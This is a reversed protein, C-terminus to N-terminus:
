LAFVLGKRPDAKGEVFGTYATALADAGTAHEIKILEPVRDAFAAWAAGVRQAFAAPGLAAAREQGVTPASFLEPRPGPLGDGAVFTAGEWHTAGVMISARLVRHTVEHVQRRVDANGAMDILVVGRDAPLAGINDYTLVDDYVGLGETFEVNAAATLGTLTPPDDHERIAWATAYATKSSASALVVAEAGHWGNAALQDAILWATTFLPRMIMSADDQGPEFGAEPVARLYHNYVPPLPARAASSEVFGARNPSARLTVYSSMPWYGYFRDGPVIGDVGSVSVAGFGWAPIRGWGEPAPFFQWYGYSDGFVAYTLNNATLGFREVRFQVTGEAASALAQEGDDTRHIRLDDRRVLFDTV